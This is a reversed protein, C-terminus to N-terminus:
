YLSMVTFYHVVRHLASVSAVYQAIHGMM